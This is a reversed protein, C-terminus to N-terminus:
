KARATDGMQSRISESTDPFDNVFAHVFAHRKFTRQCLSLRTGLNNLPSKPM